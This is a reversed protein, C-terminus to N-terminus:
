LSCTVSVLLHSLCSVGMELAGGCALCENMVRVLRTCSDGKELRHFRSVSPSAVQESGSIGERQIWLGESYQGSGRLAGDFM